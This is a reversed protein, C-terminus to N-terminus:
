PELIIAWACMLPIKVGKREALYRFLSVMVTRKRESQRMRDEFALGVFAVFLRCINLAQGGWNKLQGRDWGGGGWSGRPGLWTVGELSM